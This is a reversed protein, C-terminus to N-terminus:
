CNPCVGLLPSARVRHTPSVSLTENRNGADSHWYISFKQLNVFSDPNWGVNKPQHDRNRPACHGLPLRKCQVRLGGVVGTGQFTWQSLIGASQTGLGLNVVPLSEPFSKPRSLTRRMGADHSIGVKRLHRVNHSSRTKSDRGRRLNGGDGGKGDRGTLLWGHRAVHTAEEAIAESPLAPM